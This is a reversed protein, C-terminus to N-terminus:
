YHKFYTFIQYEFKLMEEEKRLTCIRQRTIDHTSRDYM